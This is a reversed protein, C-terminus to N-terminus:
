VPRAVELAVPEDRPPRDGGGEATELQELFGSLLALIRRGSFRETTVARARCGLSARYEPKAILEVIGDAFAEASSRVLASEGDRLGTGEIGAPTSVLAKGALAAQVTKFKLGSRQREPVIVVDAREYYPRIDPVDSEISVGRHRVRLRRAGSGVVVLKVEPHRAWVLPMVKRVAWHANWRKPAWNFSSILCLTVGDGSHQRGGTPISDTEILPPIATALCGSSFRAADEDTLTV